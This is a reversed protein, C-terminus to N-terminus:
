LVSANFGPIFWSAAVSFVYKVAKLEKSATEGEFTLNEFKECIIERLKSGDM